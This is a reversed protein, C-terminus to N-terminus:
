KYPLHTKYNKLISIILFYLVITILNLILLNLFYSLIIPTIILLQIFFISKITGFKNIFLHHIHNNDGKFPNKKYIIREVFLRFMDIGPIVMILFIKDAFFLIKENYLKIVLYSIVFGLLLTGSDGLFCKKKLNLYLFSILSILITIIFYNIGTLSIIYVLCVIGYFGVQGDIGDFMNVANIFLLFCLITFLFSIKSFNITEYYFSLQINNIFLKENNSLLFVLVCITLFFKVLYSLNYKDDFLGILYILFCSIIFFVYEVENQFFLKTSGFSNFDDFTYFSSFVISIFILTGGLLSTKYTHKKRVKDPKDYINLFKAIKNFNIILLYQLFVFVLIIILNIKIM